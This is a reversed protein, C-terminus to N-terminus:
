FFSIIELTSGSEILDTSGTPIRIWGLGYGPEGENTGMSPCLHNKWIELWHSDRFFLNAYMEKPLIWNKGRQMQSRGNM